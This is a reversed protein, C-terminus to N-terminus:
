LGYFDTVYGAVGSPSVEKLLKPVSWRPELKNGHEKDIVFQRVMVLDGAQPATWRGKERIEIRENNKAVVM